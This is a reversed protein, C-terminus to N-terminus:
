SIKWPNLVSEKTKMKVAMKIMKLGTSNEKTVNFCKM